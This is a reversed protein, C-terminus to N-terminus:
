QGPLDVYIFAQGPCYARTQAGLERGQAQNEASRIYRLDTDPGGEISMAPPYEDRDFGRRPPFRKGQKKRWAARNRDSTGPEGKHLLRAHGKRIADLAHRFVRGEQDVVVPQASTQV